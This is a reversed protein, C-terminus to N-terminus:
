GAPTAVAPHGQGDDEGAPVPRMGPVRIRTKRRTTSIRTSEESMNTAAALLQEVVTGLLTDRAEFSMDATLREAALYYSNLLPQSYYQNLQVLAREYVLLYTRGLYAALISGVPAM